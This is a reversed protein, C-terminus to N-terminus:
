RARLPDEEKAFSADVPVVLQQQPKVGNAAVEGANLEIAWKALGASRTTRLDLAEMRHTSVVRGQADVFIIDLPILTNKMWFGRFDEDPFVFIMGRDAPMEKRHMLGIEREKDEDAIEITYTKSGITMRTTPLSQPQSKPDQAATQECGTAFLLFVV